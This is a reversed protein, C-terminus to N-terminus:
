PFVVKFPSGHCMENARRCALEHFEEIQGASFNRRELMAATCTGHEDTLEIIALALKRITADRRVVANTEIWRYAEPIVDTWSKGKIYHHTTGSGMGEPWIGVSATPGGADWEWGGISITVYSNVGLSKLFAEHHMHLEAATMADTAPALTTTSMPPTEKTEAQHSNLTTM